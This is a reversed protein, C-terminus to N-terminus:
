LSEGDEGDGVECPRAKGRRKDVDLHLNHLTGHRPEEGTPMDGVLGNAHHANGTATFQRQEGAHEEVAYSRNNRERRAADRPAAEAGTAGRVGRCPCESALGDGVRGHSAAAGRGREGRGPRGGDSTRRRARRGWSSPVRPFGQRAPM